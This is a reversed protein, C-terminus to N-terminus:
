NGYWVLDSELHRNPDEEVNLLVVLLITHNRNGVHRGAQYLIVADVTDIFPSLFCGTKM